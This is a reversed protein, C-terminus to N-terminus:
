PEPRSALAQELRDLRANLEDFRTQLAAMDDDSVDAEFMPHERQARAVFTSTIGATVITLLAIGQLMAVAGVIRGWFNAPVVDGYGVTTVTQLAWWMGLWINPFTKHDVVRVLVGCGVVLSLTALVIINVANRVSVPERLFRSVRRELFRPRPPRAM